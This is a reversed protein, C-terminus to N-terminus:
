DIKKQPIKGKYFLKDWIAMGAYAVAAGTALPVFVTSGLTGAVANAAAIGLGTSIGVGASGTVTDKAAQLGSKENRRYRLINAIGYFGVAVAGAITGMALPSTMAATTTGAKLRGSERLSGKTLHSAGSSAGRLNSTKRRATRGTNKKM